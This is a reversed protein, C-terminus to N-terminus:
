ADVGGPQAPVGSVEVQECQADVAGLWGGVLDEAPDLLSVLRQGHLMVLSQCGSGTFVPDPDLDVGYDGGGVVVVVHGVEDCRQRGLPPLDQLGCGDGPLVVGV